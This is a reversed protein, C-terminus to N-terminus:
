RRVDTLLLPMTEGGISMGSGFVLVMPRAIADEGRHQEDRVILRLAVDFFGAGLPEIGDVRYTTRSWRQPVRQEFRALATPTALWPLMGEVDFLWAYFFDSVARHVAGKGPEDDIREPIIRDPPRYVWYSVPSDECGYCAIGRRNLTLGQMPMVLVSGAPVLDAFRWVEIDRKYAESYLTEDLPGGEVREWGGIERDYLAATGCFWAFLYGSVVASEPYCESFSLPMRIPASWRDDVPDYEQSNVEYDWAVLRDELWAAATAQPSLASPPLERWTDRLPDYAAGVSTPTPARNAGSLLSGFVLVETGTWVGTAANLGIPAEAILRWTDTTPRYSAGRLTRDDGRDGGGWVILEEGTWVRVGGYGRRLPARAIRRWEDARPDYAQGVIPGREGYAELLIAENGTWVTVAGAAARPRPPDQAM